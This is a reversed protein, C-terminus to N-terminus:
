EDKGLSILIRCTSSKTSNLRFTRPKMWVMLSADVGVGAFEGLGAERLMEVISFSERSCVSETGLVCGRLSVILGFSVRQPLGRNPRARCAVFRARRILVVRLRNAGYHAYYRGM